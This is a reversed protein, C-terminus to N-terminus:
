CSGQQEAGGRRHMQGMNETGPISIGIEEKHPVRNGVDWELLGAHLDPFVEGTLQPTSGPCCFM